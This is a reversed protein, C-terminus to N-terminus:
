KSVLESLYTDFENVQVDESFVPDDLTGMVKKVVSVGESDVGGVVVVSLLYSNRASSINACSEFFLDANNMNLAECYSLIELTANNLTEVQINFVSSANQGVDENFEM